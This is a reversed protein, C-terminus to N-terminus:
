GQQKGNKNEKRNKIVLFKIVIIVLHWLIVAPTIKIELSLNHTTEEGLFDTKIDIKKVKFKKVITQMFAIVNWVGASIKGYMLATDAADGSAIVCTYNINTIGINGLIKCINNRCASLLEKVFDIKESLEELKSKEKEANNKDGKLLEEDDEFAENGKLSKKVKKKDSKTESASKEEDDNESSKDKEPEDKEEKATKSVSEEEKESVSGEEKEPPNEEKSNETEQSKEEKDLSEEKSKNANKKKPKKKKKPISFITLFLYKVNLTFKKDIYSINCVVPFWLLIFIFLIMGLIIYLAIM